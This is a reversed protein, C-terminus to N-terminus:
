GHGKRSGPSGSCRSPLGHGEGRSLCAHPVRPHQDAAGAESSPPQREEWLQRGISSLAGAGSQRVAQPLLVGPLGWVTSPVTRPVVPCSAREGGGGNVDSAVALRARCSAVGVMQSRHRPWAGSLRRDTASPSTNRPAPGSGWSVPLCSPGWGQPDPIPHWDLLPTPGLAKHPWPTVLRPAPVTTVGECRPRLDQQWLRAWGM